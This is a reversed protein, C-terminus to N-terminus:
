GHEFRAEYVDGPKDGLLRVEAVRHFPVPISRGLSGTGHQLQISGIPVRRGADTVLQVRYSHAGMEAYELTVLVWSPDGDYGFAVGAQDGGPAALKEASLYRGHAEALTNRYRSALDRDGRYAFNLTAAVAIAATGALAV